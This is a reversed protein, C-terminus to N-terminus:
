RRRRGKVAELAEKGNAAEGVVHVGPYGELIARLRQRVMAHDNVLLVQAIGHLANPRYSSSAQRQAARPLELLPEERTSLPLLM